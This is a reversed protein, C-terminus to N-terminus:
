FESKNRATENSGMDLIVKYEDTLKQLISEALPGPEQYATQAFMDIFQDGYIIESIDPKDNMSGSSYAVKWMNAMIYVEFEKALKALKNIDNAIKTGNKTNTEQSEKASTVSKLNKNLNSELKSRFIDNERAHNQTKFDYNQNNNQKSDIASFDIHNIAM